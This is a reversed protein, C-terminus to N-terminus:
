PRMEVRAFTVSTRGWSRRDIVCTRPPWAISSDASEEAVILAGHELWGGHLASSIAAGALDRGYPPDLFVLHRGGDDGVADGLLTADRRSILVRDSLGLATANRSILRCTAADDDVFHCTAAGRSLAEFGLAGTGAFLDLVHAGELTFDAIAHEIINFVAQRIRDATSRTDGTEPAELRRGRLEGGVIRM